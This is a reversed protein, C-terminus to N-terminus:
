KFETRLIEGTEADVINTVTCHPIFGVKPHQLGDKWYTRIVWMRRNPDIDPRIQPDLGEMACYEGFTMLKCLVLEGGEKAVEAPDAWDPAPRLGEQPRDGNDTWIPPPNMVVPQREAPSPQLATVAVPVAVATLIAICLIPIWFRRV